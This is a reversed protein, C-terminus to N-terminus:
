ESKLFTVLADRRRNYNVIADAAQEATAGYAPKAAARRSEWAALVERPGYSSSADKMLAHILRELTNFEIPYDGIDTFYAVNKGAYQLGDALSVATAYRTYNTM